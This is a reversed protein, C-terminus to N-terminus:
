SVNMVYSVGRAAHPGTPVAQPDRPHAVEESRARASSRRTSRFQLYGRHVEV